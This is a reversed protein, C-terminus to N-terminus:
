EVNKTPITFKFSSGKVLESEVRIKGNNREVFEKCILLGLGTGTEENTGDTTLNGAIKFLNRAKDDAIGIGTDDVSIELDSNDLVRSSITITGERTFKIANNTLNRIVTTIMNTDGWAYPQQSVKNILEIGKERANTNLLSLVGDTVLYLNVNDPNFTVKGTISRSWELLNELLGWISKSSDLLLNSLERVERITMDNINDNLMESLGMFGYIPAKLDHAIISFLKDKSSNLEELEKKSEELNLQTRIKDSIDRVYVCLGIIKGNDLKIPSYTYEYFRRDMGKDGYQEVLNFEKGKLTREFNRKAKQKDNDDKIYELMNTGAEIDAGWIYKMTLKHQNNFTLYNFDNDLAFVILDSPSEVISNLYAQNKLM